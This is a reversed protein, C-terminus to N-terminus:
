EIRKLKLTLSHKIKKANESQLFLLMYIQSVEKVEAMFTAYKNAHCM